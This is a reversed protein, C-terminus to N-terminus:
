LCHYNTCSIFEWRMVSIAGGEVRVRKSPEEGDESREPRNSRKTGRTSASEKVFKMYGIVHPWLLLYIVGVM